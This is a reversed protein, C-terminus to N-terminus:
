LSLRTELVASQDFQSATIKAVMERFRTALFRDNFRNTVRTQLEKLCSEAPPDAKLQRLWETLAGRQSLDAMWQSNELIYKSGAHPHSLVPLGAMAAEILVAGLGERLSPLVFVDAMHMANRVEQEALTRWQVRNGLRQAALQELATTETERDGCLFLKVSPDNLAAVEEILYDLRKHYSNWAAVCIVIWDDDSYGYARRLEQRSAIPLVVPVCNPIISMKSAPIGARLADDYSEQQLQQIFDFQRYTKPNFPAGNAFVIKYRLNLMARIYYLFHALPVEKTWVVDPVWGSRYPLLGIGFTIQELVYAIEWRLKGDVFPLYRLPGNLWKDRHITTIRTADAHEGGAYLRVDLGPERSLARYWRATSIEFGRNIHGLGCSVLAVKIPNM